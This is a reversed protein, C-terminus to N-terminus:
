YNQIKFFILKRLDPYLKNTQAVIRWQQGFVVYFCTLSRKMPPRCMKYAHVHASYNVGWEGATFVWSLVLYTNIQRLFYDGVIVCNVGTQTTNAM